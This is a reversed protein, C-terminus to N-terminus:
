GCVDMDRDQSVTLQQFPIRRLDSVCRISGKSKEFLRLNQGSLTWKESRLQLYCTTATQRRLLLDCTRIKGPTGSKRTSGFVHPRRSPTCKGTQGRARGLEQGNITRKTWRADMTDMPSLLM